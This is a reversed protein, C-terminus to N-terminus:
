FGKLCRWGGCDGELEVRSKSFDTSGCLLEEGEHAVQENRAWWPSGKMAVWCRETYPDGGGLLNLGWFARRGRALASNGIAQECINCLGGKSRLGLQFAGNGRGTGLLFDLGNGKRGLDVREWVRM